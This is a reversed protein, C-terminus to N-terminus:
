LLIKYNQRIIELENNASNNKESKKKKYISENALNNIANKNSNNEANGAILEGNSFSHPNLNNKLFKSDNGVLYSFSSNNLQIKQLNNMLKSNNDNQINEM